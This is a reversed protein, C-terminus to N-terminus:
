LDRHEVGLRVLINAGAELNLIKMFIASGVAPNFDIPHNVPIPYISCGFAIRYRIGWFKLILAGYNM